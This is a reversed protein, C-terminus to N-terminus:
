QAGCRSIQNSRAGGLEAMPVTGRVARCLTCSLEISIDCAGYLSRAAHRSADRRRILACGALRTVDRAAFYTAVPPTRRPPRPTLYHVAPSAAPSSPWGARSQRAPRRSRQTILPSGTRERAQASSLKVMRECWMWGRVCTCGRAHAQVSFPIQTGPAKQCSRRM